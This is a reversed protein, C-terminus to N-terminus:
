PVIIPSPSPSIVPTPSPSATPSPRSRVDARIALRLKQFATHVKRLDTRIDRVLRRVTPIVTRPKESDALADLEKIATSIKEQLGTVASRAAVLEEDVTITHGAARLAEIRREINALHQTLRNSLNTLKNTMGQVVGLVRELRLTHRAERLVGRPRVELTASPSPTPSTQAVQQRRLQGPALESQGQASADHAFAVSVLPVSLAGLLVLSSAFTRM